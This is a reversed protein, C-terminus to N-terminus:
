SRAFDKSLELRVAQADEVEAEKLFILEHVDGLLHAYGEGRRLAVQSARRRTDSRHRLALRDDCLVNTL